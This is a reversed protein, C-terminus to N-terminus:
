SSAEQSAPIKDDTAEKLPILIHYTRLLAISFGRIETAANSFTQLLLTRVQRYQQMMSLTHSHQPTKVERSQQM